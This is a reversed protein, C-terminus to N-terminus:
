HRPPRATSCRGSVERSSMTGPDDPSRDVEGERGARRLLDGLRREGERRLAREVRLSGYYVASYSKGLAEAVERVPRDEIRTLWFALWTERDVKKRVAVQAAEGEGLLALRAPPRLDADDDPEFGLSASDDPFRRSRLSIASELPLLRARTQEERMGMARSRFFRWLWGRFHGGPDYQFGEMAPWLRDWARQCLEDVDDGRLGFRRCWSRLLPDYRGFFEVWAPHDRRNRVRNLLTPSTTGGEREGM